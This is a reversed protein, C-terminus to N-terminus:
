APEPTPAGLLSRPGLAAPRGRERRRPPLRQRAVTLRRAPEAAASPLRRRRPGPAPTGGTGPPRGRGRGPATRAPVAARRPAQPPHEGGGGGGEGEAAAPAASGAPAEDGHAPRARPLEAASPRHPLPPHLGGEEGLRSAQHPVPHPQCSETVQEESRVARFEQDPLAQRHWTGHARQEQHTPLREQPFFLHRM